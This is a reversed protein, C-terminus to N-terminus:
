GRTKRSFTRVLLLKMGETIATKCVIRSNVKYECKSVYIVLLIDGLNLFFVQFREGSGYRIILANNHSYYVFEKNAPCILIYLTVNIM